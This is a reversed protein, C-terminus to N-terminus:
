AANRPPPLCDHPLRQVEHLTLKRFRPSDDVDLLHGKPDSLEVRAFEWKPGDPDAIWIEEISRATPANVPVRALPRYEEAQPDEIRRRTDAGYMAARLTLDHAKFGEAVVSVYVIHGPQSGLVRCAGGGEPVVKVDDKVWREYMKKDGSAVRWRWQDRTVGREVTWVTVRASLNTPSFPKLSPFLTFLLAVIGAVLAVVAGPGGVFFWGIAQTLTRTSDAGSPAQTPM